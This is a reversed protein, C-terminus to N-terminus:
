GGGETGGRPARIGHGELGCLITDVTAGVDAVAEEVARAPAGDQTLDGPPM